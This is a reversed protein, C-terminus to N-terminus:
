RATVGKARCGLRATTSERQRRVSAPLVRDLERPDAVGSRRKGSLPEIDDTVCQVAVPTDTSVSTFLNDSQSESTRGLHPSTRLNVPLDPNDTVLRSGTAAVLEAHPQGAKSSGSHSIVFLTGTGAVIAALSITVGPRIKPM